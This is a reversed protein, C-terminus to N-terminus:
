EKTDKRKRNKQTGAQRLLRSDVTRMSGVWEVVLKGGVSCEISCRGLAMWCEISLLLWHCHRISVWRRSSCVEEMLEEKVGIREEEEEGKKKEKL